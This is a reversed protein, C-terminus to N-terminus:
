KALIDVDFTIMYPLTRSSKVYLSSLEFGAVKFTLLQYNGFDYYDNGPNSKQYILYKSKPSL